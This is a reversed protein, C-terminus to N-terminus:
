LNSLMKKELCYAESCSGRRDSNTDESKEFVHSGTTKKWEIEMAQDM